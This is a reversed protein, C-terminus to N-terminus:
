GGCTDVKNGMVTTMGSASCAMAFAKASCTPLSPNSTINVAGNVTVTSTPTPLEALSQYTTVSIEGNVVALHPFPGLRQLNSVAEVRLGGITTLASLDLALLGPPPSANGNSSLIIISSTTSLHPLSISTVAPLREFDIEAGVTTLVPMAISTLADSSGIQLARGVSALQPLAASALETDRDFVLTGGVAILRAFTSLDRLHPADNIELDGGVQVLLGFELTLPSSIAPSTGVNFIFLTSPLKDLKPV